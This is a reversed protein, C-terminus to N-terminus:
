KLNSSVPEVPPAFYGQKTRVQIKPFNSPPNVRVRISRWTGDFKKNSPVYGLTYHNRLDQAIQVCLEEVEDISQPFFAQGGTVETFDELMARAKRSPSKRFLGGRTDNEELLGIGYVTVDAERLYELVRQPGYKSANDEGDTIVLLARKDMQVTKVHDLSLYVADLLATEGRTDISELADMLNGISSTFDQELYAEDDFNVIFTQDEPNGERVFALAAANIRERKNRMSGSNDIVLGISIPVDEHRFLSIEQLVKDEYVRFHQKELGSVPHGERDLVAVPIQVLEVDVSLTYQDQSARKSTDQAAALTACLILAAMLIASRGIM